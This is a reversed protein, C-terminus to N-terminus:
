VWVHTLDGDKEKQKRGKVGSTCILLVVVVVLWYYMVEEALAVVESTKGHVGFTNLGASAPSDDQFVVRTM